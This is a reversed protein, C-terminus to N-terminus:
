DDATYIALAPHLLPAGPAIAEELDVVAPLIELDVEILAAAQRAIAATTAAVAAIPEGEWRVRDSAFLTRDQVFGGHRGAPVDAQTIVAVVGPLAKAKSTDIGRIIAHSVGAFRFAGHLMGTVTVDASYRASGTVKDRGDQRVFSPLEVAAM